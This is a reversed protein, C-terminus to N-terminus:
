DLLFCRLHLRDWIKFDDPMANAAELSIRGNVPFFRPFSFFRPSVNFRPCGCHFFRPCGCPSVHVGVFVHFRQSFPPFASVWSSTSVHLFTPFRPPPSVQVGVSRPPSVHVGVFFSRLFTSVWPSFRPCGRLSVHVGVLPGRPSVEWSPFGPLLFSVHVGEFGRNGM